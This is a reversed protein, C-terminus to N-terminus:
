HKASYLRGEVGWSPVVCGRLGRGRGIPNSRQQGYHVGYYLIFYNVVVM